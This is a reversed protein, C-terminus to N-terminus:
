FLAGAKEKGGSGRRSCKMRGAARGQVENPLATLLDLAGGTKKVPVEDHGEGCSASLGRTKGACVPLLHMMHPRKTTRALLDLMTLRKLADSGDSGLRNEAGRYLM